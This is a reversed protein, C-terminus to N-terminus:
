KYVGFLDVIAKERYSFIDEVKKKVILANALRGIPGYPIAYNLIDTMHVGGKIRKFHHEHHWMAYPGFRQEDVFYDHEKVITIETMWNMKIGFVPTIKYSILMGEYMKTDPAFPSTVKFGMAKPTIKGLNFPSSFFDWADELPIPINQEYTLRYTKM